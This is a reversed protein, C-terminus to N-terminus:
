LAINDLPLLGGDLDPFPDAIDELNTLLALLSGPPIPEVILRNGEKRLLVESSSLTFEDPITLVQNQGSTFLSIYYSNSM